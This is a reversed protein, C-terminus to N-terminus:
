IIQNEDIVIKKNPSGKTGGPTHPLPKRGPGFGNKPKNKSPSDQLTDIFRDM